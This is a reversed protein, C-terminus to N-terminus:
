SRELAPYKRNKPDAGFHGIRDPVQGRRGAANRMLVKTEARSSRRSTQSLPHIRAEAAVLPIALAMVTGDSGTHVLISGDIAEAMLRALYLGLGTGSSRSHKEFKDFARPLFEHDIGPGNDRMLFYLAPEPEEGMAKM